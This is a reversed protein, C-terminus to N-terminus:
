RRYRRPPAPPARSASSCWPRPKHRPISSYLVALRWQEGLPRHVLALGPPAFTTRRDGKRPVFLSRVVGCPPRSAYEVRYVHALTSKKAYIPWALVEDHIPALKSFM